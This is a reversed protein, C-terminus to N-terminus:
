TEQITSLDQVGVGVYFLVVRECSTKHSSGEALGRAAAGAGPLAGPGVRAQCVEPPAM